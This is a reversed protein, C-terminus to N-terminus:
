APMCHLVTPPQTSHRVSSPRPLAASTACAAPPTLDAASPPNMVRPSDSPLHVCASAQECRPASGQLLKAHTQISLVDLSPLRRMLSPRRSCSDLRLTHVRSSAIVFFARSCRNPLTTMLRVPVCTGSAFRKRSVNSPRIGDRVAEASSAPKEPVHIFLDRATERRLRATRKLVANRRRDVELRPTARETAVAPRTPEGDFRQRGTLLRFLGRHENPASRVPISTSCGSRASPVPPSSPTWARGCGSACRKSAGRATTRRHAPPAHTTLSM